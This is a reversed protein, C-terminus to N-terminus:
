GGGVGIRGGGGCVCVGIMGGGACVFVCALIWGVDELRNSM